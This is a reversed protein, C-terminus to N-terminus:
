PHLLRALADRNAAGTKMLLNSVHSEVTRRSLHLRVAIEPNSRGEAVLTLVEAERSTVGLGRLAAPVETGSLSRRPVPAGASKLLSRCAAVVPAADRAQFRPLLQRLWAVPEGWGHRLAPEAVQRWVFWRHATQWGLEGDAQAFASEADAARGTRGALVARAFGLYARNFRNPRGPTSAAEAEAIAVPGGDDQVARLLARVGWHPWTGETLLPVSTELAEIAGPRDDDLLRVFATALGGTLVRARVDPDSALVRETHEIAERRRGALAAAYSLQGLTVEHLGTLRLRSAMAAAEELHERALVPEDRHAHLVGLHLDIYATTVAAGTRTSLDRAKELRDTRGTEFLDITGLEHLARLRWLDLEQEVAIRHAWEFCRQAEATDTLRACRGLVELTECAVDWLEEREAHDLVHRATTEAEVVDGEGIAVVARLAEARIASEDDGSATEVARLHSRARQWQGATAAARAVRLRVDATIGAKDEPDLRTLMAEGVRMADEVKGALALVETLDADVVDALAPSGTMRRAKRLLEEAYTLAGEALARRGAEALLEAARENSGGASHLAAARLCWEGPLGPHASEVMDAAACALAAREPPLLRDLVVERTLAHRFTFHEAPRERDAHLIQLRGAARLADLVQADSSGTMAPLLSWEFRRGLVAAAEVVAQADHTLRDLRRHVTQAFTAPVDAALPRIVAWNSEGDRVLAGSGVLEALLDEILLPLGETKDVLFEELPRPLAETRLCARAVDLTEDGSLRGLDLRLVARRALMSALWETINSEEARLTVLCSLREDSLSDALADLVALTGADAWHIDELVILTAGPAIARTLRILAEAIITPSVSGEAPTSRRETHWDPIVAGLSAAFPGLDSASPMVHRRGYSVFASTLPAFPGAVPTARGVFTTVGLRNAHTAAERVLRSKGVGPEGVVAVLQGHGRRAEELTEQLWRLEQVRGVVVPSLVGEDEECPKGAQHLNGRERAWPLRMTAQCSVNGSTMLM